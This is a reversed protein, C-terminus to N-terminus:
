KKWRTLHDAGAQVQSMYYTYHKQLETRSIKSKRALDYAAARTGSGWRKSDRRDRAWDMFGGFSKLDKAPIDYGAAQLSRAAKREIEREGSVTSRKSGLFRMADLLLDEMVARAESKSGAGAKIDKITSYVGAKEQALASGRINLDKSRAFSRLRETAERRARAYERELEKDDLTELGQRTYTSPSFGPQYERWQRRAM